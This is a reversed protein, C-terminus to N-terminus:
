FTGNLIKAKDIIILHVFEFCCRKLPLKITIVDDLSYSVSTMKGIILSSNLM